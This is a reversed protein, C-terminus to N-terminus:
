EKTGVAAVTGFVEKSSAVIADKALQVNSRAVLIGDHNRLCKIGAAICRRIANDMVQGEIRMLSKAFESIGLCRRQKEIQRSIWPYREVMARWLPLVSRRHLDLTFLVQRQFEVKLKADVPVGAVEALQRYFDGQRIDNLLRDREPHCPLSAAFGFVYSSKLDAEAMPEGDLLCRRRLAKPCSSFATYSRGDRSLFSRLFRGGRIASHYWHAWHRKRDQTKPDDDLIESIWDDDAPVSVADLSDFTANGLATLGFFDMVIQLGSRECWDAWQRARNLLWRGCITVRKGYGARPRLRLSSSSLDNDTSREDAVMSRLTFRYERCSRGVVAEKSIAIKGHDIALKLLKSLAKSASGGHCSQFRGTHISFTTDKSSAWSRYLLMAERRADEHSCNAEVFNFWDRHVLFCMDKGAEISTLRIKESPSVTDGQQTNDCM